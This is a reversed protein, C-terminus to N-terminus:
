AGAGNGEPLYEFEGDCAKGEVIGSRCPQHTSFRILDHLQLRVDAGLSGGGAHQEKGHHVDEGVEPKPCAADSDIQHEHPESEKGEVCAHTDNKEEHCGKTACADVKEDSAVLIAHHHFEDTEQAM